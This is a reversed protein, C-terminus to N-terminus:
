GYDLKEYMAPAFLPFVTGSISRLLTAAAFASAAYTPNSDILYTQLCQFSTFTGAAYIMVGVDVVAWHLHYQASWAYILLGAPNLLAGILM